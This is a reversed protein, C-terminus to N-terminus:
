YRRRRAIMLLMLAGLGALGIAAALQLGSDAGTGSLETVTTLLPTPAPAPTTSAAPTPVPSPTSSPDPDPAPAPPVETPPVDEPSTACEPTAPPYQLTVTYEPNVQFLVEVGDRTWAYNGDTEVYSGDALQEWGPWQLPATASAGPWLIEGALPQNQIVYDQSPDTPHKFTITLPTADQTTFGEPLQLSYNLWPIDGVCQAVIDGPLLEREGPPISYFLLDVTLNSNPQLVGYASEPDGVPERNQSLAFSKTRVPGQSRADGSVPYGNDDLEIPNGNVDPASADNEPYTSSAVYQMAAGVKFYAEPIQVFYDGEPLGHFSYNGNEDTVSVLPQGDRGLVPTGANDNVDSGYNSHGYILQVGVGAFRIPEDQDLVGSNDADLGLLGGVELNYFAFDVLLNTSADSFEDGNGEAQLSDEGTPMGNAIATFPASSVDAFDAGNIGRDYGDDLSVWSGSVSYYGDLVAGVAFNSAPITVKYSGGDLLGAFLYLGQEDTVTTDVVDGSEADILLVTVGVAPADIGDEYIGSEGSDLWVQNGVSLRYFGADVTFDSRDDDIRPSADGAEQGADESDHDDEGSRSVENTPAGDIPTGVSFQATRWGILQTADNPNYGAVFNSDNDVGDGPTVNANDSVRFGEFLGTDPHQEGAVATDLQDVPINVAYSGAVLNTFEYTGDYDTVTEGIVNGTSDLLQVLAGHFGPEGQEAVGDNDIDNWVLNGIRYTPVNILGFDVNLYSNVDPVPVRPSANAAAEATGDEDASADDEAIPANGVTLVIPGSVSLKGSAPAGDNDDDAQIASSSVVSSAQLDSEGQAADISDIAAFYTVGASLGVFEYLGGARTTTTRVPEGTLDDVYLNVTVGTLGSEDEDFIGNNQHDGAGEDLWVNNGLRLGPVFGLDITLDSRNNAHDGVSDNAWGEAGEDTPEDAEFPDAEDGLTFAGSVVTTDAIAPSPAIGVTIDDDELPAADPNKVGAVPTSPAYSGLQSANVATAIRVYYDGQPVDSFAYNGDEDTTTTDVADDTETDDGVNRLEVTVGEIGVEDDDKVGNNNADEWVLNGVRYTPVETFIFDINLNSQADSYDGGAAALDAESSEPNSGQAMSFAASIALWGTAPAGDDEADGIETNTTSPNTSVGPVSIFGDLVEDDGQALTQDTPVGVRYEGASVDDFFYYGDDDTLTTAVVVDDEEEETGKTDILQVVAGSGVGSAATFDGDDDLFLRSGIRMPNVTVEATDQDDEDGVDNKPTSDVDLVFSPLDNELNADNDFDVIEATNIYKARTDSTVDVLVEFTVSEGAALHDITWEDDGSYTVTHEVDTPEGVVTQSTPNDASPDTVIEMDTGPRDQVAIAFATDLGENTVTVNFAVQEPMPGNLSSAQDSGLNKELALDFLPVEAVDHDDEDLDGETNATSTEGDNTFREGDTDDDTIDGDNDAVADAISDIDYVIGPVVGGDASDGNDADGDTDFYSIEATNLLPSDSAEPNAAAQLTISFTVSEDGALSPITLSPVSESGNGSVVWDADVDTTAGDFDLAVTQDAALDKFSSADIYDVVRVPEVAQDSQNTVTITFTVAADGDVYSGTMSEFTKTLALDVPLYDVKDAFGADLTHDNQGPNTDEASIAIDPFWDTALAGSEPTAPNSDIAYSQGAYADDSRDAGLTQEAKTLMLDSLPGTAYDAASGIRVTFAQRYALGGGISDDDLANAQTADTTFLYYGDADTVATGVPTASANLLQVTVGEIGRESPDQIGDRDSDKWVLNGIELPASDCLAELDGLGNAKGWYTQPNTALNPNASAPNTKGTNNYVAYSGLQGGNDSKKLNIIGNEDYRNNVQAQAANSTYGRPDYSTSLLGAKLPLNVLAGMAGEDWSDSADDGNFYETGTHTCGTAGEIAYSGGGVSCARLTDGLGRPYPNSAEIKDNGPIQDGYRDRIGLILNAGDFEIDTLMPQPQIERGLRSNDTATGRNQDAWAHEFHWANWRDIKDTPFEDNRRIQQENDVDADLVLTWTGSGAPDLTWVYYRLTDNAADNFTESEGSCVAGVHLVGGPSMGLGFPRVDAPKCSNVSTPVSFSTIDSAVLASSKTTPVQYVKRDNLGVVYLLRGDNSAELDGLGRKGILQATDKSADSLNSDKFWDVANAGTAPSKPHPNAGGPSNSFLANLDVLTSFTSGSQRYITAVGSDTLFPAKRRLYSSTFIDKTVPDSAVGYLAGTKDGTTLKTNANSGNAYIEAQSYSFSLLGTNSLYNKNADSVAWPFVTTCLTPNDQCYDGPQEVAFDVGSASSDAALPVIQVSTRNDAGIRSSEYGSPVAMEVRLFGAASGTAITYTGDAGTTAALETGADNYAYIKVGAVGVDAADKVGDHDYDNFVTGTLQSAAASAPAAVLTLGFSALVLAMAGAVVLRVSKARLLLGSFNM